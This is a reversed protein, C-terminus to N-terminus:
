FIKLLQCFNRIFIRNNYDIVYMIGPGAKPTETPSISKIDFETGTLNVASRIVRADGLVVPDCIKYIAPNALCKVTIEPGIGAADGMTIGVRPLPQAM